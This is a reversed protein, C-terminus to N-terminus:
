GKKIKKNSMKELYKLNDPIYCYCHCTNKWGVDKPLGKGECWSEGIPPGCEKHFRKNHGCKCPFKDSLKPRKM